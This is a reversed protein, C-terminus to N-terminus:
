RNLNESRYAGPKSLVDLVSLADALDTRGDANVDFHLSAPESDNIPRVLLDFLDAVDLTGDNNADGPLCGIKTETASERHVVTTWRGTAIPHNLRLRIVSGESIAEVIRPPHSSGDQVSFDDGSLTSTDGTFTIAIQDWGGRGTTSTRADIAGQPPDSSVIALKGTIIDVTADETDVPLIALSMQDRLTTNAQGPLLRPRFTGRADDSVKMRVSGCYFKKGNQKCVEADTDHLLMGLWRYGLSRTDALAMYDKGKFVFDPHAKDVYCNERNEDQKETTVAFDVPRISGALGSTYGDVDLQAQYARNKEGAPSWDRVYVEFMITSGPTVSIKSSPGNPLKVGNVATAELSFTPNQAVALPCSLLAFLGITKCLRGQFKSM